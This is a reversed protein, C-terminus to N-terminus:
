VGGYGGDGGGSGGVGGSGSWGSSAAPPRENGATRTGDGNWGSASRFDYGFLARWLSAFDDPLDHEADLPKWLEAIERDCHEDVVPRPLGCGRMAATWM